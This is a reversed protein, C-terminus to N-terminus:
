AKVWQGRSAAKALKERKLMHLQTTINVKHGLKKSVKAQLDSPSQPTSTLSELLTQKVGQVRKGGPRKGRGAKRGGGGSRRGRSPSSPSAGFREFVADIEEIKAVYHERERKLKQLLSSLAAVTNNAQSKAM